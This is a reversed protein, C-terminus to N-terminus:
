IESIDARFEVRRNEAATLDKKNLLAETGMGIVKLRKSSIGHHQVLYDRVMFARETSVFLDYSENGAPDTHGILLIRREGSQKIGEAVADLQALTQPALGTADRAFQLPLALSDIKPQAAEARAVPATPDCDVSVRGPPTDTTLRVGRSKLAEVPPCDKVPAAAITEAKRAAGAPGCDIEGAVRVGRTKLEKTLGPQDPCDTPRAQAAALKEPATAESLRVGRMKFPTTKATRGSLIAAVQQPNPIVESGYLALGDAHAQALLTSLGIALTWRSVARSRLHNRVLSMPTEEAIPNNRRTDLPLAPHNL